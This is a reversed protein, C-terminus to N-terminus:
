GPRQIADVLAAIEPECLPEHDLAYVWLLFKLRRATVTGTRLGAANCRGQITKQTLRLLDNQSEYRTILMHLRARERPTAM